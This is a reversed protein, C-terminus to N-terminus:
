SAIGFPGPDEPRPLWIAPPVTPEDEVPEPLPLAAAGSLSPQLPRRPVRDGALEGPRLPPPGFPSPRFPYGREWRFVTKALRRWILFLVALIPSLVIAIAGVTEVRAM